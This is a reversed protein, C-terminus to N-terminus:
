GGYLSGPSVEESYGPLAIGTAVGVIRWRPERFVLWKRATEKRMVFTLPGTGWIDEGSGSYFVALKSVVMREDPNGTSSPLIRPANVRADYDIGRSQGISRSVLLRLRAKNWGSYSFDDSIVDMVGSVSRRKAAEQVDSLSQTIRQEPTLNDGRGLLFLVGGVVLLLVAIVLGIKSSNRM